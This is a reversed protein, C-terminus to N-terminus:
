STSVVSRIQERLWHHAESAHTREHWYTYINFEALQLPPNLIKIGLSSPISKAMHSPCTMILDSNAVMQIAMHFYPVVLAVRRALSKSALVKDVPSFGEGKFSVLLHKAETFNKLTLSKKITPHNKRALCVFSEKFLVRRYIGAHDSEFPAVHTVV